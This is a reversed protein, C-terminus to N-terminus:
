KLFSEITGEMKIFPKLLRQMTADYESEDMYLIITKRFHIDEYKIFSKLLRKLTADYETEDIELVIMRRFFLLIIKIM